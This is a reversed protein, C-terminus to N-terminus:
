VQEQTSSGSQRRAAARAMRNRISVARGLALNRKAAERKSRAGCEGCEKYVKLQDGPVIREGGCDCRCRWQALRGKKMVRYGAFELITLRGHREGPQRPRGFNVEGPTLPTLRERRGYVEVGASRWAEALSPWYLTIAYESPYRRSAGWKGGDLSAVLDRYALKWTPAHGTERYLLHLGALVRERTWWRQRTDKRRDPLV